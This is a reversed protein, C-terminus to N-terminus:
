PVGPFPSLTGRVKSPNLALTQQPQAALLGECLPTQVPRQSPRPPDREPLGPSLCDSCSRRLSVDAAPFPFRLTAEQGQLLNSM